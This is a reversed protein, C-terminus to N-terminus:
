RGLAVAVRQQLQDAEEHGLITRSLAQAHALFARARPQRAPDLARLEALLGDTFDVLYASVEEFARRHAQHFDGGGAYPTAGVLLCGWMQARAIRAPEPERSLDPRRSRRAGFTGPKQVPLAAAIERPARVVLAEMADTALQRIKILRQSWKDERRSGMERVLGGSMQTFADLKNLISDTDVADPRVSAIDLALHEMDALLIDGVLGMDAPSFLPRAPDSSPVGALRLVEWPRKLRGLVLLGVYPCLAPKGARFEEYVDRVLSLNQDSLTEIRRPLLGKLPALDSASALLLAMEEIDAIGDEGGWRAALARRETSAGRARELAARIVGVAEAQLQRVREGEQGAHRALIAQAILKEHGALRDRLGERALWTWLVGITSRAIRGPQKFDRKGVLFDAFPECFLRQASPLRRVGLRRLTPRLGDLITDAPLGKDGALRSREVAM